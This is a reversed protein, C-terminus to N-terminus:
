LDLLDIRDPGCSSGLSVAWPPSRAWNRVLPHPGGEDIMLWRKSGSFGPANVDKSFPPRRPNPILELLLLALFDDAM